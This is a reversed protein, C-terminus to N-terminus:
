LRKIFRKVMFSSISCLLGNITHLNLGYSNTLSTDIYLGGFNKSIQENFGVHECM